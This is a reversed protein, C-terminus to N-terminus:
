RFKDLNIITAGEAVGLVENLGKRIAKRFEERSPPEFQGVYDGNALFHLTREDISGVGFDGANYNLFLPNPIGESEYPHYLNLGGRELYTAEYENGNYNITTTGFAQEEKSNTETGTAMMLSAVTLAILPKKM